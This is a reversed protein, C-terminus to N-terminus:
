EEEDRFLGANYMKEIEDSLAAKIIMEKNSKQETIIVQKLLFNVLTRVPKSEDHLATQAILPLEDKLAM